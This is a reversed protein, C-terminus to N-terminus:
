YFQGFYPLFHRNEPLDSFSGQLLNRRKSRLKRSPYVAVTHFSLLAEFEPFAEAEDLIPELPPYSALGGHASARVELSDGHRCGQGVTRRAVTQLRYGELDLAAAGAAEALLPGLGHRALARGCRDRHYHALPRPGFFIRAAQREDPRRALKEVLHEGRDAERALRVAEYRVDHLAPRRVVAVRRGVLLRGAEAVQTPLDGEDLGVGDEADAAYSGAGEEPRLFADSLEAPGPPVELPRGQEHGVM